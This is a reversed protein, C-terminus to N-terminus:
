ERDPFFRRWVRLIWSCKCYKLHENCDSCIRYEPYLLACENCVKYDYCVKGCKGCNHISM